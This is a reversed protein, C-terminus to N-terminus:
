VSNSGAATKLVRPPSLVWIPRFQLSGTVPGLKSGRGISRSITYCCRSPFRGGSRQRYEGNGDPDMTVVEPMTPWIKQLNGFQLRPHWVNELPRVV